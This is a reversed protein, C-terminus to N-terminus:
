EEVEEVEANDIVVVKPKKNFLSKAKDLAKKGAPIGVHEIVLTAAVGAVFAGALKADVADFGLENVTEAAEVATTIVKDEM